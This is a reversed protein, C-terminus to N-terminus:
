GVPLTGVLTVENFESLQVGATVRWNGSFPITFGPSLYHGSGLRRLPIELPAIHRSPYDMTTTLELVNLPAGSPLLASVHVDNAGPAVGPTLYISVWANASKLTVESAGTGRQAAAVKAPAADVLLATVSVVLVAIIVEVFVSRKLRRLEFEEALEWDEDSGEDAPDDDAGGAVVPVKAEPPAPEPPAFLYNVAQRSMAGLIVLVLVLISKVLLTHGYDTTRLAHFSGIQRWAQLTGTVVLAAVCAVATRSFRPVVDRLEDVGRHPFVAYALVALGGIWVSMALIHIVADPVGLSPLTGTHAHGSLAFTLAIVTAGLVATPRWWDPLPHEDPDRLFIRLMPVAALLLALRLLSMHGFSTGLVSSILSWRFIASFSLAAGYIGQLLVALVTAAFTLIWGAWVLQATRRLRRAEGWVFAGFALTGLLLATGAYYVGRVVGLTVGVARVGKQNHLLNQALGTIAPSTANAILGVQFTFAGEVPHTDASIVRWTVVYAGNALRPPLGVQVVDPSPKTISGNDVRGGRDNYVRVAGPSYTVQEDYRLQVNSPPTTLVAGQAPTTALLVAHASAPVALLVVTAASLAGVAGVRVLRGRWSM